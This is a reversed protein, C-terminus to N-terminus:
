HLLKLFIIFNNTFSFTLINLFIILHTDIKKTKNNKICEIQLSFRKEILKGFTRVYQLYIETEEKKLRDRRLILNKLVDVETGQDVFDFEKENFDM